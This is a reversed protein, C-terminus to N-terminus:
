LFAEFVIFIAILCLVNKTEKNQQGWFLETSLQVLYIRILRGILITYITLNDHYLPGLGIRPNSNTM